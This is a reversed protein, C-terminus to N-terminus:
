IEGYFKFLIGLDYLDFILDNLREKTKGSYKLKGRTLKQSMESIEPVLDEDMYKPIPINEIATTDIKPFNGNLRKRFKQALYYNILDSNLLATFLNYYNSNQLKISYIRTSFFANYNIYVANIEKGHRGFLIKDDKYIYISRIRQFYEKSLDKENMYGEFYINYKNIKKSDYIFPTNYYKSLKSSVM